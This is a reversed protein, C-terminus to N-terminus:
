VRYANLPSFVRLLGFYWPVYVSRCKRREVCDVTARAVKEPEIAYRPTEVGARRFFETSVVGPYVRVVRVGRPALEKELALSMVHLAAKAASYAALGKSLAFAAPSVVNVVVSGSGLLDKLGLVLQVPRVANVLIEEELERETHEAVPKFYAFGANNVLVELGGLSSEVLGRVAQVADGEALDKVLYTFRGGLEERLRELRDRRRAVGAVTYGRRALERVIAEGIGSSAGTVLARRAGSFM